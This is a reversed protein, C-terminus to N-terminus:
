FNKKISKNGKTDIEISSESLLGRNKNEVLRFKM